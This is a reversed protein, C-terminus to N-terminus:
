ITPFNFPTYRNILFLFENHGYPVVFDVKGVVLDTKFTGKISSDISDGRNDGLVFIEGKPVVLEGNNNFLEPKSNKLNEFNSYTTHMGSNNPNDSRNYDYIYPEYQLKNNIYLEVKDTEFNKTIKILDGEIGIIRKIIYKHEEDPQKIVVIDGRTYSAFRNVYVIDSKFEGKPNLTPQMSRGVVPTSIYIFSFSILFLSILVLTIFVADALFKIFYNPKSYILKNNNIKM